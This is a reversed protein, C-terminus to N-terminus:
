AVEAAIPIVRKASNAEYPRIWVPCALIGFDRSHLGRFWHVLKANDIQLTGDLRLQGIDNKADEFAVTCKAIRGNARVILNNPKAAYCVKPAKDSAPKADPLGRMGSLLGAMETVIAGREAHELSTIAGSQPGGLNEIAKLYIGFRPDAGFEAKINRALERISDRNEPMLHIRLIVDLDPYPSERLMKLVNWVTDFTGAGAGNRRTRDHGERWGDLSIQFKKQEVAVLKELLDSTLLAANTTIEGGFYQVGEERCRRLAYGAIDLLIDSAVLPEGGFWGLTLYDLKPLRLDILNKVAQITEDSMRGHEFTEYCYSCRLNCKETPLLILSLTNPALAHAIALSAPDLSGPAETAAALNSM